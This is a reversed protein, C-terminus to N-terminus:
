ELLANGLRRILRHTEVAIECFRVSRSKALRVLPSVLLELAEHCGSREPDFAKRHEEPIASNLRVTAIGGRHDIYIDAYADEIPELEFVVRWEKLGFRKQWSRFAEKFREFEANSPRGTSKAGQKRM